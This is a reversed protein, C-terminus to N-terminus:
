EPPMPDNAERPHTLTCNVHVPKGKFDGVAARGGSGALIRTKFTSSMTGKPEMTLVITATGAKEDFTVKQIAM